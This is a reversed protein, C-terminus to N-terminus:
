IIVKVTIGSATLLYAGRQLSGINLLATSGNVPASAVRSGNVATLSATAGSTIGTVVLTNGEISLALTPTQAKVIGVESQKAVVTVACSADFTGCKASITATGPAIAQIFGNDVSAVAPNSSTWVAPDADADDPTLTYTLTANEGETLTLSSQSLTIGELAPKQPQSYIDTKPGTYLSEVGTFDFTEPIYHRVEDLDYEVTIQSNGLRVATGTWSIALNNGDIAIRHEDGEKPVIRLSNFTSPSPKVTGSGAEGILNMEACSASSSSVSSINVFLIYRASSPKELEAFKENADGAWYGQVDPDGLWDYIANMDTAPTNGLDKESLYIAYETCATNQNSQRPLYALATFESKDTGRDIMVWHPNKREPSSNDAKWNSHWVTYPDDDCIGKIGVIDNGDPACDSSTSWKWQSRDLYGEACVAPIAASALITAIIIKKM